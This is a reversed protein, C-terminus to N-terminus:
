RPTTQRVSEIESRRRALGIRQFLSASRNQMAKVELMYPKFM